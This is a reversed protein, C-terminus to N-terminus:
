STWMWATCHWDTRYMMSCLVTPVLLFWVLKNYWIYLCLYEWMGNDVVTGSKYKVVTEFNLTSFLQCKVKFLEM